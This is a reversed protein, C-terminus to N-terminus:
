TGKYIAWLQCKYVGCCGGGGVAGHRHNEEDNGMGEAIETEKQQVEAIRPLQGEGQADALGVLLHAAPGPLLASNASFPGARFAAGPGRLSIPM